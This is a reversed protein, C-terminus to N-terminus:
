AGASSEGDSGLSELYAVIRAVTMFNEITVDVPPVTLGRSEEIHQVLRMVGLSDLLGSGLLDDDAELAGSGQDDLLERSIYDILSAPTTDGTTTM